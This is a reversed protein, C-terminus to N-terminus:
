TVYLQNYGSQHAFCSSTYPEVIVGKDIILVVYGSRINMLWLFLGPCLTMLRKDNVSSVDEYEEGLKAKPISPLCCFAEYAHRNMLIM